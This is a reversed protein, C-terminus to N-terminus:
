NSLGFFADDFQVDEMNDGGYFMDDFSSGDGNNGLNMDLDMNGGIGDLDFIDNDVAATSQPDGTKQDGEVKPPETNTMATSATTAASQVPAAVPLLGDLTSM